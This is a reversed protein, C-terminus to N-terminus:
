WWCARCIGESMGMLPMEPAARELDSTTENLDVGDVGTHCALGGGKVKQGGLSADYGQLNLVVRADDVSSWETAAVSISGQGGWGSNGSYKDVSGHPILIRKGM